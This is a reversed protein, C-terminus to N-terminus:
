KVVGLRGSCSAICVCDHVVDLHQAIAGLSLGGFLIFDRGKGLEALAQWAVCAM